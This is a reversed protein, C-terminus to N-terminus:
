YAYSGMEPMSDTSVPSTMFTILLTYKYMAIDCQKSRNYYYYNSRTAIGYEGTYPNLNMM